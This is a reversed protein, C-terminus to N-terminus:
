YFGKKKEKIKKKKKENRELYFIKRRFFNLKRSFLYKKMLCVDLFDNLSFVNQKLFCIISTRHKYVSHM